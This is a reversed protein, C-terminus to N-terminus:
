LNLTLYASLSISIAYRVTPRCTKLYSERFLTRTWSIDLMIPYHDTILETSSKQSAASPPPLLYHLLHQHNHNIAFFLQDEQAEILDNFPPLDPPCFNRRRKSRRLFADVRKRDSASIFGSWACCAYLLKAIVTARYVTQVADGPLGYCRLVRLAHLTQACNTIIERIHNSASLGNTFTVGLIRLTTVRVIGPILLPPM